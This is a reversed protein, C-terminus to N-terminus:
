HHFGQCLSFESAPGPYDGESWQYPSARYTAVFINCRVCCLVIDKAITVHTSSRISYRKQLACTNQLQGNRTTDCHPARGGSLAVMKVASRMLTLPSM